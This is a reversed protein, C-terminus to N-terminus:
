PVSSSTKGGLYSLYWSIVPDIINEIISVLGSIAQAVKNSLQKAFFGLWQYMSATLVIRFYRFPDFFLSIIYPPSSFNFISSKKFELQALSLFLRLDVYQNMKISCPQGALQHEFLCTVTVNDEVSASYITSVWVASIALRSRRRKVSSPSNFGSWCCAWILMEVLLILTFAIFSLRSRKSGQSALEEIKNLSSM